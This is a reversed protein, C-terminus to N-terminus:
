KCLEYIQVIHKREVSFEDGYADFAVPPVDDVSPFIPSVFTGSNDVIRYGVKAIELNRIANLTEIIESSTLDGSLDRVVKRTDIFGSQAHLDLWDDFRNAADRLDPRHDRIPQLSVLSM